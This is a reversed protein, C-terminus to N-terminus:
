CNGQRGHPTAQPNPTAQNPKLQQNKTRIYVLQATDSLKEPCAVLVDMYARSRGDM